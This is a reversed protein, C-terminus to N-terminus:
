LPESARCVPGLNCNVSRPAETRGRVPRHDDSSSDHANTHWLLRPRSLGPDGIEHHRAIEAPSPERGTTEVWDACWSCLWRPVELRGGLALDDDDIELADWARLKDIAEAFKALVDVGFKRQFYARSYNAARALSDGDATEDLRTGILRTLEDVNDVSTPAKAAM